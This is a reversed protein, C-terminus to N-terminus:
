GRTERVMYHAADEYTALIASLHPLSKEKFGYRRWVPASGNVSTLALRDLEAARATAYILPLLSGVAGRKKAEPLLAVDHLYLVEGSSPLAGLLSDLSPM